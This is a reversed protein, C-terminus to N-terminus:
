FKAAGGLLLGGELPVLAVGLRRETEPRSYHLLTPIGYGFGFGVMAGVIVDSVYHRDGALRFTGTAAALTIAGACAITDPTGGGYLGVYAHHACSLGAATFAQATHGSWFSATSGSNCLPDFNPDRQCEAYSPRARGTLDFTSTTVLSSVAFAEADLLLLQLAVDPSDRLLPLLLSDVGAVLVLSALGTIDSALRVKALGDKSRVRVTDRVADDFLIGGTWHPTSRPHILFFVAISATGLVATAVYEWARFRPWRWVL